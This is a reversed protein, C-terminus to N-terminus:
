RQAAQQAAEQAADLSRQWFSWPAFVLNMYSEVGEQTLGQFAQRGKESQQALAQVVAQTTESQQKLTEIGHEVLTQALKVNREQAAAATEVMTQYLERPTRPQEGPQAMAGVAVRAAEAQSKMEEIGSEVVTQALKVAREQTALTSEVLTQYTERLTNTLEIAAESAKHESMTQSDKKTAM